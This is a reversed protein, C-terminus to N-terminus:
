FPLTIGAIQALLIANLILIASGGLCAIVNTLRSNAFIGMVDRRATMYILAILPLPLIISLIVQSEVLARTPNIGLMIVIFPPIMTVLRRVWLPIKFDVFDQMITAGAMTGVVSSSIGSALLSALFIGAAAIGMLPVLTLYATGIDAIGHHGTSYFAAAAMALMAMNVLGALGLALLVEINSLRVVTRIEDDNKTPVRNQTLSSHLYIAHPMITAGIISVALMISESGALHPVLSHYAFSGWDPKTIILEALYSLSIITIFTAIVVEMPRFGFGQLHLILYTAIGVLVFSVLLPMGFLLSLGISAGLFEALDTAMAAIESGLWMFYVVPRPFHDRCQRALSKGTVIGLKASLAQFLMAMVSASLVVWLLLYGFSAGGQINTAFNGPDEYAISAIIAPGLFPILKRLGTSEGALAAQAELLTRETWSPSRNSAKQGFTEKM